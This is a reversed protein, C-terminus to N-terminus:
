AIKDTALIIVRLAENLTMHPTPPTNSTVQTHLLKM